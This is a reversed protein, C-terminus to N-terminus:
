QGHAVALGYIQSCGVKALPEAVASLTAGTTVVDDIILITQTKLWSLKDQNHWNPALSFSNELHSLRAAKDTVSAQPATVRTKICLEMVPLKMKKALTRAILETQNFGRIKLKTPHLPIWTICTVPPLNVVEYLWNGLWPGLDPYPKYKYAKILTSIPPLFYCAAYIATLSSPSIKLPM